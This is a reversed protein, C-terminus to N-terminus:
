DGSTSLDRIWIQTKGSFKESLSLVRKKSRLDYFLGGEFRLYGFVKQEDVVIVYCGEPPRFDDKRGVALEGSAQYRSLRELLEQTRTLTMLSEILPSPPPVIEGGSRDIQLTKRNSFPIAGLFQDVEAVEPVQSMASAYRYEINLALTFSSDSPFSFLPIEISGGPPVKVYEMASGSYYGFSLDNIPEEHYAFHLPIMLVSGDEYIHGIDVTVVLDRLVSQIRNSLASPMDTITRDEGEFRYPIPEPYTRSLLYAWYYTRLSPGIRGDRELREGERVLAKIKSKRLEFGKQVDERDVYVFVVHEKGAEYQYEQLGSLVVSSFSRIIAKASESVRDGQEEQVGEFTSQISVQIQNALHGKAQERAKSADKDQGEGWYYTPTNKIKEIKQLVEKKSAGLSATVAGLFLATALGLPVCIRVSM